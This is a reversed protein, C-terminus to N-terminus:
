SRIRATPSRANTEDRCEIEIFPDFGKDIAIGEVGSALSGYVALSLEGSGGMGDSSKGRSEKM